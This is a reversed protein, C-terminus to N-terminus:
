FNFIGEFKILQPDWNWGDGSDEMIPDTELETKMFDEGMEPIIGLWEM